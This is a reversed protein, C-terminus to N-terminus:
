AQRRDGSPCRRTAKTSALGCNTQRPLKRCRANNRVRVGFMTTRVRMPDYCIARTMERSPPLRDLDSVEDLHHDIAEFFWCWGERQTYFRTADTGWMVDPQEMGGASAALAAVVVVGM